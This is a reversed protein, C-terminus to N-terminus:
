AAESAKIICIILLRFVMVIALWNEFSKKQIYSIETVHSGEVVDKQVRLKRLKIVM